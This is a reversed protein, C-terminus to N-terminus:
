NLGLSEITPEDIAGTVILGYAVQYTAIAVRTAPGLSGTVPGLYYGDQQLASQVNAIVQDPLLDGYAYIPGDYDYSDNAPDYGLAPYWYGADCYYYGYNVFVITTFHQRWWNCDHREHRGRRLADFYSRRNNNAGQFRGSNASAVVRQLSAEQVQRTQFNRFSTLHTRQPFVQPARRVNWNPQSAIRSQSANVMSPHASFTPRAVRQATGSSRPAGDDATTVQAIACSFCAALLIFPKM